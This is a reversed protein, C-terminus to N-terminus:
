AKRRKGGFWGILGGVLLGIGAAAIGVKLLLGQLTNLIANDFLNASYHFASVKWQDDQKVIVCTWRGQIEFERGSTLVYKDASSGYAMGTTDSYLRALAGAEFSLKLDKVIADPGTMMKDFYDRIEQSGHCVDSNMTTFVVDDTVHKLLEELDRQNLADSMKQKLSRLADHVEDESSVQAYVTTAFLLAIFTRM